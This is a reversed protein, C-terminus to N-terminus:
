AAYCGLLCWFEHSCSMQFYPSFDYYYLQLVSPFMSYFNVSCSNIVDLRPTYIEHSNWDEVVCIHVRPLATRQEDSMTFRLEQQQLETTTRTKMTLKVFSAALFRFLKTQSCIIQGSTFASLFPVIRVNGM